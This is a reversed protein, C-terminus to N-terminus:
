EPIPYPHNVEPQLGKRGKVAQCVQCCNVEAAIKAKLDRSKLHTTYKRDCRENIKNVGPHAHAHVAKIVAGVLHLPVCIRCDARIKGEHLVGDTDGITWFSERKIEPWDPAFFPGVMYHDSWDENLIKVAPPIKITPASNVALNVAGPMHWSLDQSPNGASVVALETSLSKLKQRM